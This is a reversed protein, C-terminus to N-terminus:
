TTQMCTQWCPWCLSQSKLVNILKDNACGGLNIPFSANKSDNGHNQIRSNPNSQIPNPKSDAARRSFDIAGSVDHLSHQLFCLSNADRYCRSQSVLSTRGWIYWQWRLPWNAGVFCSAPFASTQLWTVHKAECRNGDHHWIRPVSM